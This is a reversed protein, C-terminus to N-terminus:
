SAAPSYYSYKRGRPQLRTAIKDKSDLEQLFVYILQQNNTWKRRAQPAKRDQLSPQATVRAMGYDKACWAVM